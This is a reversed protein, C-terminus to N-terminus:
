ARAVLVGGLVILLAGSLLRVVAVDRAEAFLVLALVSVILTNMNYLPALKSLPTAYRVIGVMVLAMGLSWSAGIAMALLGGRLNMSRDQGFATLLAGCALVGLGVFSLYPGQGGQSRGYFKQLIGALGFLVAPAIGGVLMGKLHAPM